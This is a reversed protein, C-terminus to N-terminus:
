DVIDERFVKVEDIPFGKYYRVGKITTLGHIEYDGLQIFNRDAKIQDDSSFSKLIVDQDDYDPYTYCEKEYDYEYMGEITEIKRMIIQAEINAEYNEKLSKELAEEGEGSEVYEDSIYKSALTRVNGTEHRIQKAFTSSGNGLVTETTELSTLYGDTNVLYFQVLQQGFYFTASFLVCSLAILIIKVITLKLNKTSRTAM